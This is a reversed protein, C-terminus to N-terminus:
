QSLTVKVPKDPDSALVQRGYPLPGHVVLRAGLCRNIAAIGRNGIDFEALVVPGSVPAPAAEERKAAKVAKAVSKKAM